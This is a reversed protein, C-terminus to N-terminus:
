HTSKEYTKKIFNADSVIKSPLNVFTTLFSIKSLKLLLRVLYRNLKRKTLIHYTSGNTYLNLKYRKSIFKLTDLSYFAIHQGHERAFYWWNEPTDKDLKILNTSFIITDSIKLMKIIEESPSTLHEFLEFATIAEIRQKSNYEFGQAFINKTYPDDWYFDFGKDRMLRVFLGYGGGYDLYKGGRNFLFYLLFATRMALTVNRSVLGIDTDNIPKNYAEKLWYPNETQLIKCKPCLYYGIKYKNLIISHYKEECDTNCLRCKM